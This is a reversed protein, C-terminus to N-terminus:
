PLNEPILSAYTTSPWKHLLGMCLPAGPPRPVTAPCRTMASWPWPRPSVCFMAMMPWLEMASMRRGRSNDRPWTQCTLSRLNLLCHLTSWPRSSAGVSEGTETLMRMISCRMLIKMLFRGSLLEDNSIPLSISFSEYKLPFILWSTGLTKRQFTIIKWGINRPETFNPFHNRGAFSRCFSGNLNFQLCNRVKFMNQRFLEENEERWRNLVIECFDPFYILGNRPVTNCLDMLDQEMPNLGLMKMAALLDKLVCSLLIIVKWSNYRPIYQQREWVRKSVKLSLWSLKWRLRLSSLTMLHCSTKSYRSRPTKSPLDTPSHLLTSSTNVPLLGSHYHRLTSPFVSLINELESWWCVCRMTSTVIIWSCIFIFPCNHLLIFMYRINHTFTVNNSSHSIHSTLYPDPTLMHRSDGRVASPQMVCELMLSQMAGCVVGNVMVIPWLM